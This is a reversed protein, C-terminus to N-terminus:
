EIIWVSCNKPMHLLRNSTSGLLFEEQRSLKRRAVVVTCAGLKRQEELICDAISSCDKVLVKTLVKEEPFGSQILIQRYKELMNNARIRTKEVWEAQEEESKFFEEGPLIVFNVVTVIFGRGGGLFDAVYLVARKSSDSEDVAILVHRDKVLKFLNDGKKNM